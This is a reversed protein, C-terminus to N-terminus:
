YASPDVNPIPVRQRFLHVQAVHNSLFLGAAAPNASAIARYRQYTQPELIGLELEVSAPMANSLFWCRDYREPFALNLHNSAELIPRAYRLLAAGTNTPVGFATYGYLQPDLDSVIPFGNTAFLRVRLSVIGDAVRTVTSIPAAQFAPSTDTRRTMLATVFSNLLVGPPLVNGLPPATVSPALNTATYRYLTGVGVGNAGTVDPVVYYGTGVWTRDPWRQDPHSLFFFPQLYSTRTQPATPPIAGPLGQVLLPTYIGEAPVPYEVYFNVANFVNAPTAEAVGRALMDMVARGNELTDVDTLSQRFARQTQGFMAVLGLVIFSLLAVTVLIEVLSFARQASHRIVFSSHRIITKM